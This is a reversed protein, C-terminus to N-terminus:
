ALRQHLNAESIEQTTATITRFPALGRGAVLWGLLTSFIAMIALAIGSEIVLQHLDAIRQRDVVFHIAGHGARSSLAARIQAPVRPIEIAHAIAHAPGATISAHDVLTYTIALLAVGCALFLGGYLLTLRWRMTTQPHRWRAALDSATARLSVETRLM